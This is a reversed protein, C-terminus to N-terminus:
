TVCATITAAEGSHRGRVWFITVKGHREAAGPETAREQIAPEFRVAREEDKYFALFASSERGSVILETDPANTDGPERPGGAVRLNDRELCARADQPSATGDGDGCAALAAAVVLVLSARRVDPLTIGPFM